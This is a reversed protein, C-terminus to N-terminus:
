GTWEQLPVRTNKKLLSMVIDNHWVGDLYAAERVVGEKKFGCRSYCAIARENLDLVRLELRHLNAAEFAYKAVLLTAESGLGRNWFRSDFIGISFRANKSDPDIESLRTTGICIGDLEIVWHFPQGSYKDYWADSTEILIADRDESDIGYMRFEEPIRVCKQRDAKDTERPPRLLLAPGRLIPTMEM